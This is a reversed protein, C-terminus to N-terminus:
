EHGGEGSRRMELEVLRVIEKALYRRRRALEDPHMVHLRPIEMSTSHGQMDSAESINGNNYTRWKIGGYLLYSKPFLSLLSSGREVGEAFQKSRRSNLLRLARSYGPVGISNISSEHCGRLREFYAEATTLADKLISSKLTENALRIAGMFEGPMDKMHFILTECYLGVLSPVSRSVPELIALLFRVITRADYTVIGVHLILIALWNGGWQNLKDAPLQDLELRGFLAFGMRRDDTDPSSLLSVVVDECGVRKLVEFLEVWSEENDFQSFVGKRDAQSVERLLAMGASRDRGLLEALLRGLVEWTGKFETPIPLTAAIISRLPTTELQDARADCSLSLDIIQHRLIDEPDSLLNERIWSVGYSFSVDSRESRPLALRLFNFIELLDGRSGSEALSLIHSFQGDEITAIRDTTIWSRIFVRRLELKLSSRTLLDLAESHESSTARLTGLILACMSTSDDDLPESLWLRFLQAASEPREKALAKLANWFGAGGLDDGVTSRVNRLFQGLLKVEIETQTIFAPLSDLLMFFPFGRSGTFVQLVRSDEPRTEGAHIWSLVVGLLAGEEDIKILKRTLQYAKESLTGENLAAGLGVASAFDIARERDNRLARVAESVVAQSPPEISSDGDGVTGVLFREVLSLPDEAGPARTTAEVDKDSEQSDM